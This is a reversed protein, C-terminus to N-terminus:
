HKGAMEEYLEPLREADSISGAFRAREYHDTFISVERRIDPDAISLTFEAPTQAINKRIGSRALRKLMRMYWFSAASTPARQPDRSIRVTHFSRWARVLFPLALLLGLAVCAWAMQAPTMREMRRQLVAVRDLLKQYRQHLSQRFRSQVSLSTASIQNSLRVQHTFDYNIIWERWMGQIADLYLALRSWRGPVTGPSSPTPDFTVWGFEPFYVEVWSHAHSERVIYNGTVDNYEGGRFGNVLRAPINLTRLMITMSTAFYECHGKKREFLFYALQDRPKEGPLQLTYGYNNKLYADIARAREYNSTSSATIRRALERVRPDVRPMQLYMAVRPPYDRSNSHLVLPAPDRADAEATYISVAQGPDSDGGRLSLVSGDANIEVTRYDGNLKLPVPALFFVNLAGPEMIVRYRLSGSASPPPGSYFADPSAQNLDLPSNNVTRLVPIELSNWWRQGDFNALAIGRWKPDEPLKGSLVQVHMVVANSQQIQGIGGLRVERSFGTLMASQVGFNGLYGANNMRPLVFFILAAGGMTLVGMTAAAGALPRYFGRGEPPLTGSGLAQRESRRMELGIFASMAAMIFLAFTILFMTDVTLVAASLVMLFALVILYLLDRDRHVSFIKVVLSFLVMHVSASLFSGSIYFYDVAYFVLYLITLINTWREPLVLNKRMLLLYARVLLAPIVLALSPLDLKGTGTLAVFGTLLLLYLAWQFFREVSTERPSEVPTILAV